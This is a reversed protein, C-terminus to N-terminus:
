PLGREHRAADFEDHALTEAEQESLGARGQTTHLQRGMLYANLVREVVARDSEGVLGLEGRAREVLEADLTVTVQDERAAMCCGYLAISGAERAV